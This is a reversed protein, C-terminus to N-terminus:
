SKVEIGRHIILIGFCAEKGDCEPEVMGALWHLADVPVVVVTVLGEIQYDERTCYSRIIRSVNPAYM